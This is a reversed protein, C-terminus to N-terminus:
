ANCGQWRQAVVPEVGVHDSVGTVGKGVIVLVLSSKLHLARKKVVGGGGHAVFMPGCNM